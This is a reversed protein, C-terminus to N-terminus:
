PGDPQAFCIQQGTPFRIGMCGCMAGQAEGTLVFLSPMLCVSEPKEAIDRGVFIRTIISLGFVVVALSEGDSFFEAHTWQDSMAVNTQPFQVSSYSFPLLNLLMESNPCCHHALHFHPQPQVPRFRLQLFQASAADVGRC